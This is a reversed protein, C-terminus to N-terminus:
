PLIGQTAARSDGRPGRGQLRPETRVADGVAIAGAELGAGPCAVTREVQGGPTRASRRPFIRTVRGSM